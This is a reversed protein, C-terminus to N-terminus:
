IYLNSIINNGGYYEIKNTTGSCINDKIISNNIKQNIFTCDIFRCEKIIARSCSLNIKCNKFTTDTIESENCNINIESNTFYIDHLKSNNNINAKCNDIQTSVGVGSVNSNVPMKFENINYYGERIYTLSNDCLYTNLTNVNNKNLLINVDKKSYNKNNNDIGIICKALQKNFLDEPKYNGVTDANGGNAPLSKPKNRVYNADGEKANWDACGKDIFKLLLNLAARDEWNIHNGNKEHANLDDKDILNKFLDITSHNKSIVKKIKNIADIADKDNILNDVTQNISLKLNNTIDREAAELDTRTVSEKIKEEQIDNIFRHNTDLIIDEPKVKNRADGHATLRKVKNNIEEVSINDDLLEIQDVDKGNAYNNISDQIRKFRSDVYEKMTMRKM